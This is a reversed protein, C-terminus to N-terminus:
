EKKSKCFGFEGGWPFELGKQLPLIPIKPFQVIFAMAFKDSLKELPLPIALMVTPYKVYYEMITNYQDSGQHTVHFPIKATLFDSYLKSSVRHTRSLM